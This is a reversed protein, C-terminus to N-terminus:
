AVLGGHHRPLLRREASGDEVGDLPNRNTPWSPVFLAVHRGVNEGLPDDSLILEIREVHQEDRVDIEDSNAALGGHRVQLQYAGGRDGYTEFEGLPGTTVDRTSSGSGTGSRHAMRLMVETNALPSGDGMLVRGSFRIHRVATIVLDQLRANPRVKLLPMSGVALFPGFEMSEIRIPRRGDKVSMSYTGPTMREIVFEGNETTSSLNTLSSTSMTMAGSGNQITANLLSVQANRDPLGERDVIRGSISASLAGNIIESSATEISDAREALQTRVPQAAIVFAAVAAFAIGVVGLTKM